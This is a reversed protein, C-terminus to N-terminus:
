LNAAERLIDRIAEALRAADESPNDAYKILARCHQDADWCASAIKRANVCVEYDGEEDPLQFTLTAIPM